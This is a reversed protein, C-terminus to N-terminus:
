INLLKYLVKIRLSAFHSAMSIFIIKKKNCAFLVGKQVFPKTSYMAENQVSLTELVRFNLANLVM